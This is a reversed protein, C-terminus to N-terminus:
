VHEELAKWMVPASTKELSGTSQLSNSKISVVHFPPFSAHLFTFRSFQMLVFGDFFSLNEPFRGLCFGRRKRLRGWTYEECDRQASLHDLGRPRASSFICDM